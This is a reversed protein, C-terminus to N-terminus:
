HGADQNAKEIELRLKERELKGKQWHNMILVVSLIIGVVTASMSLLWPVYQVFFAELGTAATAGAVSKAVLPSHILDNM